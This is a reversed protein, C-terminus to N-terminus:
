HVPPFLDAQFLLRVSFDLTRINLNNEKRFVPLCGPDSDHRYEQNIFFTGNVTSNSFPLILCLNPDETIFLLGREEWSGDYYRFGETATSYDTCVLFASGSSIIAALLLGVCCIVSASMTLSSILQLVSCSFLQVSKLDLASRGSVRTVHRGRTGSFRTQAEVRVSFIM